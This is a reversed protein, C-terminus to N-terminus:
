EEQDESDNYKM